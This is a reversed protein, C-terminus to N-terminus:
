DIRNNEEYYIRWHNLGDRMYQQKDTLMWPTLSTTLEWLKDLFDITKSDDRKPFVEYMEKETLFSDWWSQLKIYKDFDDESYEEFLVKEILDCFLDQTYIVKGM